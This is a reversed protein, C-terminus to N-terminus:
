VRGSEQFTHCLTYHNELYLGLFSSSMGFSISVEFVERDFGGRDILMGHLLVFLLVPLGKM